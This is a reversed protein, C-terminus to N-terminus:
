LFKGLLSFTEALLVLSGSLLLSWFSRSSRLVRSSMGGGQTRRRMGDNKSSFALNSSESSETM